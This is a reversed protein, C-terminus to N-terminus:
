FSPESGRVFGPNTQVRAPRPRRQRSPRQTPMCVPSIAPAVTEQSKALEASKKQERKQERKQEQLEREIQTIQNELSDEAVKLTNWPTMRGVHKTPTRDVGRRRHSRHDIRIDLGAGELANNVAAAWSARWNEVLRPDSWKRVKPGFGSAQLERLTILIHAHPNGVKDHMCIDAVMGESVFVEQVWHTLLEIQADRELALPLAVEVERALQADIRVEKTDVTNWLLGRDMIWDPSGSPAIISKFAVETKRTYNHIRGTLESRLREGARYAALRVANAGTSRGHVKCTFHFIAGPKDRIVTKINM